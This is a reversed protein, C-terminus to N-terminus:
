KHRFDWPPTPEPLSWLGIKKTRADAELKTLAPDHNYKEYHWALGQVLLECNVCLDGVYVFALTRGYRDIGSEEIRVNKNFCLATTAQRAKDGYEQNQEPCDIGELRIKLQKNDHTLVIISDGDTIGVVRAYYAGSTPFLLLLCSFIFLKM